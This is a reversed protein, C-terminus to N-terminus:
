INQLDYARYANRADDEKMPKKGKVWKMMRSDGLNYHSRSHGVIRETFGRNGPAIIRWVGDSFLYGMLVTLPISLSTNAYFQSIQKADALQIFANYISFTGMSEFLAIWDKARESIKVM